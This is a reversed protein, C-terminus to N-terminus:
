LDHKLVKVISEISYIIYKSADVYEPDVDTYKQSKQSDEFWDRPGHDDYRDNDDGNMADIEEPRYGLYYLADGYKDKLSNILNVFFLQDRNTSTNDLIWGISSLEEFMKRVKGSAWELEEENSIFKIVEGSRSSILQTVDLMKEEKLNNDSYAEGIEYLDTEKVIYKDKSRQQLFVKLIKKSTTWAFLHYIGDKIHVPREEDPGYVRYVLYVDQDIDHM